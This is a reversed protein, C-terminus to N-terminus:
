ASRLRNPEAQLAVQPYTILLGDDPSLVRRKKLVGDAVSSGSGKAETALCRVQGAHAPLIGRAISAVTRAAVDDDEHQKIPCWLSEYSM